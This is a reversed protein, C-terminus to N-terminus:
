LSPVFLLSVGGLHELHPPAWGTLKRPQVLFGLLLVLFLVGVTCSYSFGFGVRGGCVYCIRVYPQLDM